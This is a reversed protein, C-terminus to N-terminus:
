VCRATYLLCITILRTKILSNPKQKESAIRYIVSSIKHGLNDQLNAVEGWYRNVLPTIIPRPFMAAIGVFSAQREVWKIDKEAPKSAKDAEAYELLRLDAAHLAQLEFFM